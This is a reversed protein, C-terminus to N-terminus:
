VTARIYSVIEQKASRDILLITTAYASVGIGILAFFEIMEVRSLIYTKMLVITIVMACTGIMSFGIPKLWDMFSCDVVKMSARWLVPAPVIASICLAWVVGTLGFQSTLPYIVVALVVIGLLSIAAAFAPKGAAQFAVLAPTNIFNVVALLCLIEIVPVIPLWKDTLILHVFDTSLACLGGAMPLGILTVLHLTKLYASKFERPSTHLHSYAPYGVKWVVDNVQQFIATSFADARNFFGLAPMGLLKGVFLTTGQDRAMALISNGLIWKGFQFLTAAKKLSFDLRPRYHHMAYTLVCTLLGAALSAWVLAWVNKLLMALVIVLPVYLALPAIELAFQKHFDFHKRFYVAGINRLGQLVLLLSLARLVAIARPENFVAGVVPALTFIATFLILCRLLEFTWAVNLYDAPKDQRQIIASEFGTQTAGQSFTILATALGLLGFDTPDLIRALIVASILTSAKACLSTVTVWVAGRAIKRPISGKVPNTTEGAVHRESDSM